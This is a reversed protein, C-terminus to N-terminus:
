KVLAKPSDADGSFSPKPSEGSKLTNHKRKISDMLKQREEEERRLQAEEDEEEFVM